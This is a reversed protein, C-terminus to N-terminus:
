LSNLFLPLDRLLDADLKRLLDHGSKASSFDVSSVVEAVLRPDDSHSIYLYDFVVSRRIVLMDVSVVILNHSLYSFVKSPFSSVSFVASPDQVCMGIHCSSVLKCYDQGILLGHFVIRGRILSRAISIENNVLDVDSDSGFGLIHLVYREDLFKMAEISTFVGGKNRDFTGAYVLHIAGDVIKSSIFRALSYNGSIVLSPREYKIFVDALVSSPFIFADARALSVIERDRVESRNSIDGVDSYVEEVELIYKFDVFRRAFDIINLYAMSHYVIVTQGPKVRLLIFFLVYLRMYIYDFIRSLKFRGGLSFCYEVNIGCDNISPSDKGFFSVKRAVSVIRVNFGSRSVVDSIYDMKSVGAPSVERRYGNSDPVDYFGLYYINEM